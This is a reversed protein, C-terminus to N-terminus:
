GEAAKRLTQAHHGNFIVVLRQGPQVVTSLEALTSRVGPHVVRIFTKEDVQFRRPTQGAATSLTISDPTVGEVTGILVRPDAASQVRTDFTVRCQTSRNPMSAHPALPHIILVDGAHYHTSAWCDPPILGTPIAFSPPKALNHLYGRQHQGVAIMLGGVEPPCDCVPVWVPKYGQVGQSFFGDQHVGTVPGGPPYNRYQVIPVMCAPEGLIKQMLARNDPHEIVAAAIGAYEASEEMNGAFPQGTWIPVTADPAILGHRVMVAFMRRRAENLSDPNLVKRLLLYGHEDHFRMLAAHDDLLHNASRLEHTPQISLVDLDVANPLSITM